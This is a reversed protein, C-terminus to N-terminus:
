SRDAPFLARLDGLLTDVDRYPDNGGVSFRILIENLAASIYPFLKRLNAVRHRFMLSMDSLILGGEFGPYESPRVEIDRLSHRGKGVVQQLMNGLCFVDYYPHSVEYDFDIWVCESTGNKLIIHDARIDGHHLGQRHLQAIADICELVPQMQGPLVQHYYEEHAMDLRRLYEYLSPGPIFDIVRVLNGVADRVSDGQMFHPHGRMKRLVASEKEASRVLRFVTSGIRSNFSEGFVLKIIKRKGSTLDIATKVWFKVQEDLGFRGERAHGLVLYDNGAIRLVSGVDISMFASTDEFVALREQPPRKTLETIRERLALPHEFIM